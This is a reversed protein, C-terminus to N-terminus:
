RLRRQHAATGTWLLSVGHRLRKNQKNIDQKLIKAEEFREDLLTM